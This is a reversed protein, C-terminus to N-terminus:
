GVQLFRTDVGNDADVAVTVPFMCRPCRGAYSAEDSTRGGNRRLYIRAYVGCCRFLVGLFPRSQGTQVGTMVQPLGEAIQLM